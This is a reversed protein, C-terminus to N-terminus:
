SSDRMCKCQWCGLIASATLKKSWKSKCFGYPSGNFKCSNAFSMYALLSACLDGCRWFAKSKSLVDQKILANQALLNPHSCSCSFTKFMKSCSYRIEISPNLKQIWIKQRRQDMKALDTRSMLWCSPHLLSSTSSLDSVRVSSVGTQRHQRLSGFLM